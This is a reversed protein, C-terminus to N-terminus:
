AEQDVLRSPARETANVMYGAQNFHRITRLTSSTLMHISIPSVYQFVRADFRRSVFKCRFHISGKTPCNPNPELWHNCKQLNVPQISDVKLFLSEPEPIVEITENIRFVSDALSLFRQWTEQTIRPVTPKAFGLSPNFPVSNYASLTVTDTRITGKLPNACHARCDANCGQNWKHVLLKDTTM